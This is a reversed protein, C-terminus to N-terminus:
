VMHSIEDYALVETVEWDGSTLHRVEDQDSRLQPSSCLSPDSVSPGSPPRVTPTSSPRPATRRPRVKRSFMTLHHFDGQGGQKVPLTLFFRSRDESFLPVQRQLCLRLSEEM